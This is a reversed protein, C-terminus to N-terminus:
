SELTYEKPLLGVVKVGFLRMPGKRREYKWVRIGWGEEGGGFVAMIPIPCREDQFSAIEQLTRKDRHSLYSSGSPHTHWDGLYTSFRNSQLYIRAIEAEQYQSDPIFGKEYHIAEPGPGIAHTVVVETFLQAWYGMLVGGTERPFV